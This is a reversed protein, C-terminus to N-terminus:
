WRATHWGTIAYAIGATPVWVDVHAGIVDPGTDQASCTGIGDITIITGLPIYSPDVACIGPGAQGGLATTGSLSYGTVWVEEAHVRTPQPRPTATVSATATPRPTPSDTATPRASPSPTVTNTAIATATPSNPHPIPVNTISDARVVHLAEPRQARTARFSAEVFVTIRFLPTVVPIQAPYAYEPPSDPLPGGVRWITLQKIQMRPPVDLSAVMAAASLSPARGPTRGRAGLMSTVTGMPFQRAHSLPRASGASRPSGTSASLTAAYWILGCFFLVLLALLFVTGRLVGEQRLYGSVMSWRQRGIQDYLASLKPNRRTL